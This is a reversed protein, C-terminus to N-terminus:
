ISYYSRLEDDDNHVGDVVVAFLHTMKVNSHIMDPQRFRFRFRLRIKSDLDFKELM